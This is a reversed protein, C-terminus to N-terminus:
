VELLAETHPTEGTPKLTYNLFVASLASFDFEHGECLAQQKENLLM